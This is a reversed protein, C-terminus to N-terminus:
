KRTLAAIIEAAEEVAAANTLMGHSVRLSQNVLTGLRALERRVNLLEGLDIGGAHAELVTAAVMGRLRPRLATLRQGTEDNIHLRLRM